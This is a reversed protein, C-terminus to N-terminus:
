GSFQLLVTLHRMVRSVIQRKEPAEVDLSRTSKKMIYYFADDFDVEHESWRFLIKM